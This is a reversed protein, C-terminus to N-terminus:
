AAYWLVLFYHGTTGTIVFLYWILHGYPVWSDTAFFAVCATHLLGGAILLFLGEAPISAFLPPVAIVILGGM